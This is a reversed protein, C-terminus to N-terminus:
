YPKRGVLYTVGNEGYRESHAENKFLHFLEGPGYIREAGDIKITVDGALIFAKVEFPHKHDSVSGNPDHTVTTVEGFKEMQLLEKFQEINM